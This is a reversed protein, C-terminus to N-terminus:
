HKCYGARWCDERCPWVHNRRVRGPGQSHADSTAMTQYLAWTAHAKGCLTCIGCNRRERSAAHFVSTIQQLLTAPGSRDYHKVSQAALEQTYHPLRSPRRTCHVTIGTISNPLSVATTPSNQPPTLIYPVNHLNQHCKQSLCFSTLNKWKTWLM